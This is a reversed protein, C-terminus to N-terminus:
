DKNFIDLEILFNEVTTAVIQHGTANWHADREFTVPEASSSLAEDLSLYPITAAQLEARLIKDLVDNNLPVSAVILQAENQKIVDHLALLLRITLAYNANNDAGPQLMAQPQTLRDRLAISSELLNRFFYTNSVITQRIRQNFRAEPVPHNTLVLRDNTLQFKAKNYGHQETNNNGGVDNPHFLLLVVDPQYRLGRHKLYLLQQDTSYGAVSANIIEWDPHKKELIETFIQEHEVGFGWGFSDGLVLLRNKDEPRQLSYEKDRLGHSNMSVKVSFEVHEFQGTEGPMHSWGLLEDYRWFNRHEAIPAWHPLFFRTFLEALFLMALTSGVLLGSNLVLNKVQSNKDKGPL